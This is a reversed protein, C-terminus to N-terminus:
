PSWPRVRSRSPATCPRPSARAKCCSTSPPVAREFMRHLVEWPEAVDLGGGYSVTLIGVDDPTFSLTFTSRDIFIDDVSGALPTMVGALGLDSEDFTTVTPTGFVDRILRYEESYWPEAETYEHTSDNSYVAWAM